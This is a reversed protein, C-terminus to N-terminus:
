KSEGNIRGARYVAQGLLLLTAAAGTSIAAWQVKYFRVHRLIDEKLNVTVERFTILLDLKM